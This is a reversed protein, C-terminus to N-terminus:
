IDSKMMAFLRCGKFKIRDNGFYLNISLFVKEKVELEAGLVTLSPSSERM